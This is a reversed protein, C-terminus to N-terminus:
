AFLHCSKVEVKNYLISSFGKWNGLDQKRTWVRERGQRLWSYAIVM